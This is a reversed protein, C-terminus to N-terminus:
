VISNVARAGMAELMKTRDKIREKTQYPTASDELHARLRDYESRYNRVNQKQIIQRRIDASAALAQRGEILKKYHQATELQTKKLHNIKSFTM